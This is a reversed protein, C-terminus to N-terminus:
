SLLKEVSRNRGEAFILFILDKVPTVRVAIELYECSSGIM